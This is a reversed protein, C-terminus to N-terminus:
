GWLREPAFRYQEVLINFFGLCFKLYAAHKEGLQLEGQMAQRLALATSKGAEGLVKNVAEFIDRNARPGKPDLYYASKHGGPFYGHFNNLYENLGLFLDHDNYLEPKILITKLRARAIQMNESRPEYVTDAYRLQYFCYKYYPDARLKGMTAAPILPIKMYRAFNIVTRLANEDNGPHGPKTWRGPRVGIPRIKAFPSVDFNM